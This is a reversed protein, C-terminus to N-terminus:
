LIEIESPEEVRTIEKRYTKYWIVAPYVAFSVLAATVATMTGVITGFHVVLNILFVGFHIAYPTWKSTLKDLPVFRYLMLAELLATVFAFFIVMAIM